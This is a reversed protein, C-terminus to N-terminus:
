SFRKYSRVGTFFLGIGAIIPGYMIITYDPSNILGTYSGITVVLGALTLFAGVFILEKAKQKKSKTIDDYLIQDDINRIIIKIDAEDIELETLEKRIISFDKGNRKEELFRINLEEISKNTKNM